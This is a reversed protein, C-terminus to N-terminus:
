TALQAGQELCDALERWARDIRDADVVPGIVRLIRRALCGQSLIHELAHEWRARDPGDDLGQEILFSWLDRASCSGRPWGFLDLYPRANLRADDGAEITADLIAALQETSMSDMARVPATAEEALRRVVATIAAAIALDALPCEQVDLVRVEITGRTFRAIAGRANVWEEQLVGGPDLPALDRYIRRLITDQYEGESRAPEPVLLGSVSPVRDANHRCVELRTDLLRTVRGEMIPSSAALAPLLPLVVRVAAHLRRFEDAGAFPLNLHAAQLNAWGHGSCNFIRDFTEYVEGYEHPWLRMELAPDMRPHMGTPLLCADQEELLANAHGVSAQFTDALGHLSAAPEATKLELVHLVLENSWALAGQAIESQPQGQGDVLLRDAIPRVALTDRDAIMYELEVGYREFLGYRAAESM